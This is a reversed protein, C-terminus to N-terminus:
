NYITSAFLRPDDGIELKNGLEKAKNVYAMLEEPSLSLSLDNDCWKAIKIGIAINGGYVELMIDDDDEYQELDEYPKDTKFGMMIFSSTSSNSVFGSRIKM